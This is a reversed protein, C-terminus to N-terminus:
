RYDLVVRYYGQLDDRHSSDTFESEGSTLTNTFIPVWHGEALDACHEVVAVDGPPGGFRLLIDQSGPATSFGGDRM